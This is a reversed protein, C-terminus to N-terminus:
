GNVRFGQCGIPVGRTDRVIKAPSILDDRKGKMANLVVSSVIYLTGEEPEPLGVPESYVYEIIPTGNFIALTKETYTVKAVQNTAPYWNKGVVDYIDHSTLNVIKHVNKM